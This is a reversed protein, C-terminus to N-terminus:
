LNIGTMLVATYCSVVYIIYNNSLLDSEWLKLYVLMELQTITHYTKYWDNDHQRGRLYTEKSEQIFTTRFSHFSDYQTQETYGELRLGFMFPSYGSGVQSSDYFGNIFVLLLGNKDSQNSKANRFLSRVAEESEERHSKLADVYLM